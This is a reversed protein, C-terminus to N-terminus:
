NMGNPTYKDRKGRNCSECLTRLNQPITLGGKSVPIIHDVELKAGQAASAGCIQCRFGDRQLINYRLSQSMKARELEANVAPAAEVKPLDGGCYPCKSETGDAPAGCNPCKM